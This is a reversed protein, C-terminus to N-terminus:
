RRDVLGGPDLFAHLRAREIPPLVEGLWEAMEQVSKFVRRDTSHADHVLRLIQMTSTAQSASHLIGAREIRSNVSILMETVREAVAPSLVKCARWDAAIVLKTSSPIKALAAQMMASMSDVDAVSHYGAAVDIEMLRGIRVYCSNELAM